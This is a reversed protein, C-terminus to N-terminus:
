NQEVQDFVDQTADSSILSNAKDYTANSVKELNM